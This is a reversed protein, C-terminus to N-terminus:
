AEGSKLNSLFTAYGNEGMWYKILNDVGKSTLTAGSLGDVQYQAAPSEPNAEGKMVTLRVQGEDYVQKGVWKAKWLPNDVEGGLGPTEAHEYFGLGAVKNLNSELALFGHLTSWLGYGKVPLIVKDLNGADDNVLYVLGFEAQRNIKAIDEDDPVETSKAPDKSAKRQDYTAPDVKDTFTGTDFDIARIQVKEFQKEVSVGEQLLGAAALINRKMDLSKNAQQADRLLVAAGSVVVSCVLCLLVAVTLVKKMSDNSSSV